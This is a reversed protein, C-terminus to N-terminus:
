KFNYHNKFISNSTSYSRYILIYRLIGKTEYATQWIEPRGRVVYRLAFDINCRLRIINKFIFCIHSISILLIIINYNCLPSELKLIM